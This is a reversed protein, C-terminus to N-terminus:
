RILGASTTRAPAFIKDVGCLTPHGISAPRPLGTIVVTYDATIVYLVIRFTGHIREPSYILKFEPGILRWDANGNHHKAVLNFHRGEIM